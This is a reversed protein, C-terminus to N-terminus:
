RTPPAASLEVVVVEAGHPLQLALTSGGQLATPPDGDLLRRWTQREAAEMGGGGGGASEVGGGGAIVLNYLLNPPSSSARLSGLLELCRALVLSCALEAASLTRCDGIAAQHIAGSALEGLDGLSGGPMPHRRRVAPAATDLLEAHLLEGCSDAFALPLLSTGPPPLRYCCHLTRQQRQQQQQQQPAAAAAPEPAPEVASALAMLPRSCCPLVAPPADIGMDVDGAAVDLGGAAGGLLGTLLLQQQEVADVSPHQAKSYLAFATSRAAAGGLDEVAAPSLM